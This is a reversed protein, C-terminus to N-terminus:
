RSIERFELRLRTQRIGALGETVIRKPVSWKQHGLQRSETERDFRSALRRVEGLLNSQFQRLYDKSVFTAGDSAQLRIQRTSSLEPGHDPSVPRRGLRSRISTAKGQLYIRIRELVNEITPRVPLFPFISEAVAPRLGEMLHLVREDEPMNKNVTSCLYIVNYCYTLVDENEGQKRSLLKQRQETAYEHNTFATIFKEKLQRWELHQEGLSRYWQIAVGKLSVKIHRARAEDDWHNYDAVDEYAAIWEVVDEKPGSFVPPEKARYRGVPPVPSVARERPPEVPDFTAAAARSTVGRRDLEAMVAAVIDAVMPQSREGETSPGPRPDDERLSPPTSSSGTRAQLGPSTPGARRGGRSPGTTESEVQRRTNVM